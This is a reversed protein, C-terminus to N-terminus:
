GHRAVENLDKPAANKLSAKMANIRDTLWGTMIWQTEDNWNGCYNQIDFQALEIGPRLAELSVGKMEGPEIVGSAVQNLYTTIRKPSFYVQNSRAWYNMTRLIFDLGPYLDEPDPKIQAPSPVTVMSAGQDVDLCVETPEQRNGNPM